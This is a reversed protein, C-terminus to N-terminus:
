VSRRHRPTDKPLHSKGADYYLQLNFRPIDSTTQVRPFIGISSLITSPTEHCGITVGSSTHSMMGTPCHTVSLKIIMMLLTTPISSHVPNTDHSPDNKVSLCYQREGREGLNHQQANGYVMVRSSKCRVVATVAARVALHHRGCM